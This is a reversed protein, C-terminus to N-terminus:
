GRDQVPVEADRRRLHYHHRFPQFGEQFGRYGPEESGPRHIERRAGCCFVVSVKVFVLFCFTPFRVTYEIRPGTKQWRLPSHFVCLLYHVICITKLLGCFPLCLNALCSACKPIYYVSTPVCSQVCSYICQRFHLYNIVCVQVLHCLWVHPLVPDCLACSPHFCLLVPGYQLDSM